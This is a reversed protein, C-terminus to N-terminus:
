RLPGAAAQVAALLAGDRVLTLGAALDPHVPRDASLPPVRARVAARAARTGRGPELPRRVDLAQAAVVLEIAVVQQVHGLVQRAKLAATAGMSNWDEQLGSTPISDVSAPHSLARCEAVLAAATYQALMYGSHLGGPAALFPPLGENTLPNVLRDIRREAIGALHVLGVALTDLALALPQGHFNGGSLVAGDEPFLLPNDTVSALERELVERAFRIADRAAGHVQPMCRLSYADQVRTCDRHSAIIASDATLARLNAASELQGPHPRLAHIRPDFAANTGMLAELSMAGAVDVLRALDAADHVLLAGVGAMLHTGNLLALGEKMELALPALGARALADRAPLREPGLTAEGEGILCAAVHALPALDGSAGVSGRSPVVPLLDRALCAVLREVVALRVGSHGRALSAALLLLIARTEAPGLPDGVGAAHSLVLNRQLERRAEPAIATDKLKGVGTTVGYVAQGSRDLAELVARGRALRPPVETGVRVPAADRAVAVVDGLALPGGLVVPPTDGGAPDARREVIV